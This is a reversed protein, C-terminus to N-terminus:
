WRRSWPWPVLGGVNRQITLLGELFATLLTVLNGERWWWVLAAVGALVLLVHLVTWSNRFTRYVLPIGDRM